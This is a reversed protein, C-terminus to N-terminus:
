RTTRKRLRGGPKFVSLAAATGILAVHYLAMLVLTRQAEAYAPTGASDAHAVAFELAAPSVTVTLAVTAVLLVLKATVWWHRLGWRTGLALVLGTGLTLLAAPRALWTVMLEHIAYGTRLTAADRTDLLSVTLVLFTATVGLWGVSAAVHALLVTKRWAPPLLSPRAAPRALTTTV